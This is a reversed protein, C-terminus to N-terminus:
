SDKPSDEDESEPAEVKWGADRMREALATLDNPGFHLENVADSIKGVVGLPLKALGNGDLKPEVSGKIIMLRLLQVSDPDADKNPKSLRIADDYEGSSLERFTYDKGRVNITKQQFGDFDDVPEDTAKEPDKKIETVTGM